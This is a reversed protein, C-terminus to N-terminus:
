ILLDDDTNITAILFFRAQSSILSIIFYASLSKSSSFRLDVFGLWIAMNQVDIANEELSMNSTEDTLLRHQAEETAQTRDAIVARTETVTGDTTGVTVEAIEITDVLDKVDEQTPDEETTDEAKMDAELTLADEEAETVDTTTEIEATVERSVDTAVTVVNESTMVSLDADVTMLDYLM